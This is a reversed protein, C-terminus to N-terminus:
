DSTSSRIAPGAKGLQRAITPCSSRSGYWPAREIPLALLRLVFLMALSVFIDSYAERRGIRLDTPTMARRGHTIYRLANKRDDEGTEVEVITMKTRRM